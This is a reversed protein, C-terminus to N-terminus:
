FEVKEFGDKGAACDPCTWDHPLDAWRTGPAIGEGPLGTAEDYVFDCLMCHWAESGAAPMAKAAPAVRRPFNLVIAELGESGAKLRM